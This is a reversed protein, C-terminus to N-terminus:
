CFISIITQSKYYVSSLKYTGALCAFFDILFNMKITDYARYSLRGYLAPPPEDRYHRKEPAAHFGQLHEPGERSATHQLGSGAVAHPRGAQPQSAGM